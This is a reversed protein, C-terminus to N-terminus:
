RLAELVWSGQELSDAIIPEEVTKGLNEGLYNIGIQPSTTPLYGIAKLMVPKQFKTVNHPATSEIFADSYAKYSCSIRISASAFVASPDLSPIQNRGNRKLYSSVVNADKYTKQSPRRSNPELFRSEWRLFMSM